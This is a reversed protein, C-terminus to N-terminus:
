LKKEIESGRLEVRWKTSLVDLYTCASCFIANLQCCFRWHVYSVISDHLAVTKRAM